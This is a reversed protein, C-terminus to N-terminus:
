VCVYFKDRCFLYTSLQTKKVESDGDIVTFQGVFDVFIWSVSIM